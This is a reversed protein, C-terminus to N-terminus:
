RHRATLKGIVGVYTSAGGRYGPLFANARLIVASWSGVGRKPAYEIGLGHGGSEFRGAPDDARAVARRFGPKLAFQPKGREDGGDEGLAPHGVGLGGVVEEVRGEVIEVRRRKERKSNM